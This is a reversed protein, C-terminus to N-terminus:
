TGGSFLVFDRLGGYAAVDEATESADSSVFSVNENEIIWEMNGIRRVHHPPFCPIKLLQSQSAIPTGDGDQRFTETTLSWLLPPYGRIRAVGMWQDCDEQRMREFRVVQASDLARGGARESFNFHWKLSLLEDVSLKRRGDEVIYRYRERMRIAGGKSFLFRNRKSMTKVRRDFLFRWYDQLYVGPLTLTKGLETTMKLLDRPGLFGAVVACVERCDLMLRSFLSSCARCEYQDVIMDDCGKEEEEEEVKM